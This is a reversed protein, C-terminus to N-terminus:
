ALSSLLFSAAAGPPPWSLRAFTSRRRTGSAGEPATPRSPPLPPTVTTKETRSPALVM